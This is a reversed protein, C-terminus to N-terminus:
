PKPNPKPNPNPKPKPYPKTKPKPRPWTYLTLEAQRAASPPLRADDALKGAQETAEKM